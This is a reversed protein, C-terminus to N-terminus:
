WSERMAKWRDFADTVLPAFHSRGGALLEGRQCSMSRRAAAGHATRLAHDRGLYKPRRPHLNEEDDV